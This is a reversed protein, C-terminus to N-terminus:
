PWHVDWRSEPQVAVTCPAPGGICAAHEAWGAPPMAPLRADVVVGLCLLAAAPVALWNRRALAVVILGAMVIGTLYFYRGASFPDLPNLLAFTPTETSRIAALPVIAAIGLGVAVWARPLRWLAAVLAAVVIVVVLPSPGPGHMGTLPFVLDRRLMVEPVLSWDTPSPSVRDSIALLVLQTAAAITLWALHWRWVRDRWARLAFLPWLLIAAPGTLGAVLIGIKDTLDHVATAPPTAVLLALLYVALVWGIDRPAGSVEAAAPLMVFVVALVLRWRRGPIFRSMRDSVLFAAVIATIVLATLNGLFPAWVPPVLTEALAIVRQVSSLYGAYTTWLTQLGWDRADQYFHADDAFFEARTLTEPRRLFLLLSAAVGVGVAWIFGSWPEGASALVGTVRTSLSGTGRSAALRASVQTLVAGRDV